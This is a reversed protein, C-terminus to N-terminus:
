ILHYWEIGRLTNIGRASLNEKEHPIQYVFKNRVSLAIFLADDFIKELIKTKRRRFHIYYIKQIVRARM